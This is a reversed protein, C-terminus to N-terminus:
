LYHAQFKNLNLYLYDKREYLILLNTYRCWSSFHQLLLFEPSLIFLVRNIVISRIQRRGTANDCSLIIVRFFSVISQLIVLFVL